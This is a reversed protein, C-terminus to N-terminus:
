KFNFRIHFEGLMVRMEKGEDRIQRLQEKLCKNETHRTAAEGRKYIM